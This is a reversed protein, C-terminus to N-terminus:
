VSNHLIHTRGLNAGGDEFYQALTWFIPRFEFRHFDLKMYGGLNLFRHLRIKNKEQHHSVKQTPLPHVRPNLKFLRFVKTSISSTIMQEGVQVYGTCM